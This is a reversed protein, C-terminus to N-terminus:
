GAQGRKHKELTSTYEELVHKAGSYIIRFETQLMRDGLFVCSLELKNKYKALLTQLEARTRPQPREPAERFSVWPVHQLVAPSELQSRIIDKLHTLVQRRDLNVLKASCFCSVQM